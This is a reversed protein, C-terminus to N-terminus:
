ISPCSEADVAVGGSGGERWGRRGFLFLACRVETKGEAAELSESEDVAGPGVVPKLRRLNKPLLLLMRLKSPPLAPLEELASVM